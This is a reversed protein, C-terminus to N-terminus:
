KNNPTLYPTTLEYLLNGDVVVLRDDDYIGAVIDEWRQTGKGKVGKVERCGLLATKSGRLISRGLLSADSKYTQEAPPKMTNFFFPAVTGNPYKKIDQSHTWFGVKLSWMSPHWGGRKGTLNPENHFLQAKVMTVGDPFHEEFSVKREVRSSIDTIEARIAQQYEMFVVKHLKMETLHAIQERMEAMDRRLQIIEQELDEYRM